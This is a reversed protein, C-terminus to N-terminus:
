ITHALRCHLSECQQHPPSLGKGAGYQPSQAGEDNSQPTTQVRRLPAYQQEAVYADRQPPMQGRPPPPRGRANAAGPQGNMGGSYGM